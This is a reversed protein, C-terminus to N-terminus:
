PKGFGARRLCTSSGKALGLAKRWGRRRSAEDREEFGASDSKQLGRPRDARGRAAAATPPAPFLLASGAQRVWSRGVKVKQCVGLASGAPSSM